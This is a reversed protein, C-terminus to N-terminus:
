IIDYSKKNTLVKKLFKKIKKLFWLFGWNQQSMKLKIIYSARVKALKLHALSYICKEPLASQMNNKRSIYYFFFHINM